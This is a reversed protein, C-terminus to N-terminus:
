ARPGLGHKLIALAHDVVVDDHSFTNPSNAVGYLMSISLFLDRLEVDPRVRGAAISTELPVRFVEVTRRWLDAIYASSVTAANIIRFLGPISMQEAAVRRLVMFLLDPNDAHEAAFREYRDLRAAYIAAVLATRDPFHRYLTGRGVGAAEAVLQLPAQPSHEAFVQEAAALLADYNRRADIRKPM